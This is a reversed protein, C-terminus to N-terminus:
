LEPSKCARILEELDVPALILTPKQPVAPTTDEEDLYECHIEMTDLQIPDM